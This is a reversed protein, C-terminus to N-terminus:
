WRARQDSRRRPDHRQARREGQIRLPGLDVRFSGPHLQQPTAVRLLSLRDQVLGCLNGPERVIGAVKRLDLQPHGQSAAVVLSRQASELCLRAAGDVVLVSVPGDRQEASLHVPQGTLM